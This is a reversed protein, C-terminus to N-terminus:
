GWLFSMRKNLPQLQIKEVFKFASILKFAILFNFLRQIRRTDNDKFVTLRTKGAIDEHNHVGQMNMHVREGPPIFELEFPLILFYLHCLVHFTACVVNWASFPYIGSVCCGGTTVIGDVSSLRLAPLTKRRTATSRSCIMM